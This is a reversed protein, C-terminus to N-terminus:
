YTKTHQNTTVMVTLLRSFGLQALSPVILRSAREMVLLDSTRGRGQRGRGGRRDILMHTFAIQSDRCHAIIIDKHREIESRSGAGELSAVRVHRLTTSKGGTAM